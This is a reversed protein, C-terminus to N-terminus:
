APGFKWTPRRDPSFAPIGTPFRVGLSIRLRGEWGVELCYRVAGERKRPPMPPGPSTRGSEAGAGRGGATPEARGGATPVAQCGRM